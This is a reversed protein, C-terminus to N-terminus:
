FAPEPMKEISLSQLSLTAPAADGPDFNLIDFVFIAGKNNASAPPLFYIPYTKPSGVVPSNEGGLTSTVETMACLQFDSTHVRLRTGPVVASNIQDSAVTFNLRYLNGPATFFVDNSPSYWYGFTNSNDTATLMLSQEAWQSLPPTFQPVSGPTWGEQSSDFTYVRETTAPPLSSLDITEVTVSDLAVYGESSNLPDFNYVDFALLMNDFAKPGVVVSQPPVFYLDYVKGNIDPSAAGDGVSEIVLMNAQQFNQANARLRITPALDPAVNSILAFRARYLKDAEVPVANEPSSWSGFTNLNDSYKVVLQGDRWYGYPETFVGPVTNFSWGLSDENFSFYTYEEENVEDCGIDIGKGQPRPEDDIDNYPADLMTGADKCKSIDNLHFDGAAPNRVASPGDINNAVVYTGNDVYMNIEYEGYFLEIGEDFYDGFRQSDFCNNTVAQPDSFINNENIGVNNLYFINNRIKPYAFNISVGSSYNNYLTNNVVVANFDKEKNPEEYNYLRIANDRNKWIFNNFIRTASNNECFIGNLLNDRIDNNKIIANSHDNVYIGNTLNSYIENGDIIPASDFRVAIGNQLNEYIKNFVIYPSCNLEMNIGDLLNKNITNGIIDPSSANKLNIGQGNNEQINNSKITANCQNQCFIGDKVNKEISNDKITPAGSNCYIGTENDYVHNNIITSYSKFLYIGSFFATTIECNAVTGNSDPPCYIGVNGKRIIFNELYCGSLPYFVNYGTLGLIQNKNGDLQVGNPVILNEEIYERTSSKVIIKVLESGKPSYPSDGEPYAGIDKGEKGAGICPSEESLHFSTSGIAGIITKYPNDITGDEVASASNKDVYIPNSASFDGWRVFQPDAVINNEVVSGTGNNVRNNIETAKNYVYYNEDLYNGKQNQYFCNYALEQPDSNPYREMVGYEKNFAFINNILKPRGNTEIFLGNAYNSSLVNNILEARSTNSCFVANGINYYILNQELKVSANNIIKIGNMPHSFICNGRAVVGKSNDKFLIGDNNNGAIYNSDTINAEASGEVLVGNGMNWFLKNGGIYLLANDMARIAANKNWSIENLDVLAQANINAFVGYNANNIIENSKVIGRATYSLYVGIGENERINNNEVSVFCNNLLIVGHGGNRQIQNDQIAGFFVDNCYIGGQGNRSCSSQRLTLGFGEIYIGFQSNREIISATIIPSSKECYIGHQKNRSINCNTVVEGFWTTSYSAVGCGENNAFTTNSFVPSAILGEDPNDIIYVGHFTNKEITCFEFAPSCNQVYVGVFCEEIVCLKLFPFFDVNSEPPFYSSCAVGFFGKKIHFNFIYNTYMGDPKAMLRSRGQITPVGEIAPQLLSEGEWEAINPDLIPLPIYDWGLPKGEEDYYTSDGLDVGGILYIHPDVFLNELYYSTGSTKDVFILAPRLASPGPFRGRAKDIATQINRLPKTITTGDNSDAGRLSVFYIGSFNAERGAFGMFPILLISLSVLLLFIVYRKM